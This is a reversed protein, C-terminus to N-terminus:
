NKTNGLPNVKKKPLPISPGTLDPLSDGLVDPLKDELSGMIKNKLTREFEPSQMYRIAVFGFAAMSISM